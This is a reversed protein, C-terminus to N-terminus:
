QLEDYNEVNIPSYSESFLYTLVGCNYVVAVQKTNPPAMIYMMKSPDLPRVGELPQVGVDEDVPALVPEQEEIPPPSPHRPSFEESDPSQPPTMPSLSSGPYSVLQGPETEIDSEDLPSRVCFFCECATNADVATNPPLSNLYEGFSIYEESEEGEEQQELQTEPIPTALQLERLEEAPTPSITV